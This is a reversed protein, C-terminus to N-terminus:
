CRNGLLKLVTTCCRSANACRKRLMQATIASGNRLSQAAIEAVTSRDHLLALCKHLSQAAKTRRNCLWHAAIAAITSRDHM